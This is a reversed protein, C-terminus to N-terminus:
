WDEYFSISREGAITPRLLDPRNKRVEQWSPEYPDYSAEGSERLQTALSPFGQPRVDSTVAQGAALCAMGLAVVTDDHTGGTNELKFGYNREVISVQSLERILESHDFIRIRRDKFLALLNMTLKQWNAGSFTFDDIRVKRELRQRLGASQWPDFSMSVIHFDRALSILYSEVEEVRVEANRMAAFIKLHDLMIFGQDRHVVAIATRDRRLGLDLALYYSKEADGQQRQMLGPQVAVKIDESTM